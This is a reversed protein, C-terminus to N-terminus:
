LLQLKEHSYISQDSLSLSLSLSLPQELNKIPHRIPIVGEDGGTIDM